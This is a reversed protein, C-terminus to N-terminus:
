EISPTMFGTSKMSFHGSPPRRDPALVLQSSRVSGSASPWSLDLGGAVEQDYFAELDTTPPWDTRVWPFVLGKEGTEPDEYSFGKQPYESSIPSWIALPRSHSAPSSPGFPDWAHPEVWV